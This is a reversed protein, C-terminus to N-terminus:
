GQTREEVKCTRKACKRVTTHAIRGFYSYIVSELWQYSLKGCRDM